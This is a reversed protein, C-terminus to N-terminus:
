HMILFISLNRNTNKRGYGEVINSIISKSSRRIRSGTEYMDFEPLDHLSMEHIDLVLEIALKRIELNKYGM